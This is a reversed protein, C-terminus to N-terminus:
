LWGLGNFYINLIKNIEVDPNIQHQAFNVSYDGVKESTIEKSDSKHLINAISCCAKKVKIENSTSRTDVKSDIIDSAREAYYDFDPLSIESGKFSNTYFSYDAYAM